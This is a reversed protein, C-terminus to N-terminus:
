IDSKEDTWEDTQRETRRAGYRLFRLYTYFSSIHLIIIDWTYIMYVHTFHHYILNKEKKEISIKIKQNTLHIFPCFSAWFSFYCNCTDHAMDSSCYLMHDHNKTCKHLIIIHGLAKKQKISIKMNWVTLPPPLPTFPCFTAWFSFYCNCQRCVM